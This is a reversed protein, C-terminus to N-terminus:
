SKIIDLIKKILWNTTSIRAGEEINKLESGHWTYLDPVKQGNKNEGGTWKKFTYARWPNSKRGKIPLGRVKGDKKTHVGIQFDNDKFDQAPGDGVNSYDIMYLRVPLKIKGMPPAKYISENTGGDNNGFSIDYYFKEGLNQFYKSVDVRKVKPSLIDVDLKVKGQEMVARYAPAGGFNFGSYITPVNDADVIIVDYKINPEKFIVEGTTKDVGIGKEGAGSGYLHPKYSAGAWNLMIGMWQQYTYSNGFKGDKTGYINKGNAGLGMNIDFPRTWNEPGFKEDANNIETNDDDDKLNDNGTAFVFNFSGILIVLALLLSITRKYKMFDYGKQINNAIVIEKYILFFKILNNM